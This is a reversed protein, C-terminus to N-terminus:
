DGLIVIILCYNKGKLYDGRFCPRLDEDEEVYFVRPSVGPLFMKASWARRAGLLVDSWVVGRLLLPLGLLLGFPPLPEPKAIGSKPSQSQSVLSPVLGCWVVSFFLYVWHCVLPHSPSQSQSVLSPAEPKAIGSQPSPWM